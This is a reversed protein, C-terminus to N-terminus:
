GQRNSQVPATKAKAPKRRRRRRRTTEVVFVVFPSRGVRLRVPLGATLVFSQGARIPRARSRVQLTARGHLALGVQQRDRPEKERYGAPYRLLRYVTNGFRKRKERVGGPLNQWPVDRLDHPTVVPPPPPSAPPPGEKRVPPPEPPRPADGPNMPGM